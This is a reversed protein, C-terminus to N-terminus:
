TVQEPDHQFYRLPRLNEVLIKVTALLPAAMLAGAVGWFWFGFVVAVFIGAPTMSLTEGVIAPTIIQGEIVSLLLFVGPVSLAYLLTDFTTIGVLALMSATALAGIYPAFNFLGAVLGWLHPNPVNMAYLALATLLGLVTNITAITILYYSLESRIQTATSVILRKSRWDKALATLSRLVLGESCLLFFTLVVVIMIGGSLAPIHVTLLDQIWDTNQIEVAVAEKEGGAAAGAIMSVQDGVAKIEDLSDTLGFLASRIKDLSNPVERLWQSAPDAILNGIVVFCALLASVVAGATLPSPIRFRTAVRVIPAIIISLMWAFTIPILLASASKMFYGLALLTLVCLFLVKANELLNDKADKTVPAHRDPNSNM